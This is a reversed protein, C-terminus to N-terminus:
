VSNRAAHRSSKPLAKIICHSQVGGFRDQVIGVEVGVRVVFM